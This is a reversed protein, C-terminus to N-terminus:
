TVAQPSRKAEPARARGAVADRRLHGAPAELPTVSFVDAARDRDQAHERAGPVDARLAGDPEGAALRDLQLVRESECGCYAGTLYRRALEGLLRDCTDLRRVRLEIEEDGVAELLRERVLRGVPREAAHRHEDLVEGLRGAHARCIRRTGEGVVHRLLVR